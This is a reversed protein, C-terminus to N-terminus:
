FGSEYINNVRISLITYIFRWNDLQEIFKRLNQQKRLFTIEKM